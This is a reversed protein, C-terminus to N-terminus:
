KIRKNEKINNSLTGNNGGIDLIPSILYSKINNVINTADYKTLTSM